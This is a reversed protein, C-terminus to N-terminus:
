LKNNRGRAQGGLLAPALPASLHEINKYQYHKLENASCLVIHSNGSLM